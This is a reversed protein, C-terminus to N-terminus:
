CPSEFLRLQHVRSIRREMRILGKLDLEESSLVKWRGRDRWRGRLYARIRNRVWKDLTRFLGTNNGYRYHDAWGRIMPNVQNIVLEVPIDGQSRRTLERVKAYFAKMSKKGVGVYRKGFHFGLFDFGEQFSSIVTKELSLRLKLRSLLEQAVELAIEAEERTRCLVLVDDAYRLHVYGAAQLGRDFPTLYINSLLPSIVGGQPTGSIAYRVNGEEMVGTTLWGRILRLVRRDKVLERVLKMLIDHDVENFFNAIDLDVVYRYGLKRNELIAQRATHTSKGPRFGHSGEFFVEEFTPEIVQRVAQQCVRDTLVPIGLPRQKKTGPKPIYVRRVPKSRYTDAYLAGHLQRLQTMENAKWAEVTVKDVGPAGKNACVKASARALNAIRYVKDIVSHLPKVM